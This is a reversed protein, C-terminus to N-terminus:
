ELPVVVCSSPELLRIVGDEVKRMENGIQVLKGKMQPVCLDIIWGEQDSTYEIMYNGKEKRINLDIFNDGIRLRRVSMRDWEEPLQPSLRITKDYAEPWVGLIGSILTKAMGYVTWAQFPCGYDPMMENIAGPMNQNLTAAIMRLYKVAEDPRGNNAEAVAQVGTSITMMHKREVASLYPGYVGCNYKGIHELAKQARERPAICCEMPTNIVWNKNTFWGREVNPELTKAEHLISQYFSILSDNGSEKYMKLQDIAGQVVKMADSAKAYFDCYSCSSENWFDTNIKKKLLDARSAYTFALSDENMINAMKSAAELAQQTYVAVDILEANLGKVEMIGYGEPFLNQNTDMEETLWTIGKKVGPYIEDLLKKDGTWRFADWLAMIYHATEQTNGRNGVFGNNSMEHIIRGNGNVRESVHYLLRLTSKVVDFNGTRLLGQLSYSNDCGFLWPYEVAGASLFLGITDVETELWRNNVLTWYYAEELKKDPIEIQSVSLQNSIDQAKQRKQEDVNDLLRECVNKADAINEISYAMAYHVVQEEGPELVLTTNISAPTVKGQTKIESNGLEYSDIKHSCKWAMNWNHLSDKAAFLSREKDWMVKDAADIIGNEESYWVPFLDVNTLFEMNLTYKKNSTNHLIYSIVLGKEIDSVFQESQVCVGELPIGFDFSTLHPFVTMEKAHLLTDIDQVTDALKLWYGDAMKFSGAWLGGMEGSVHSGMDPFMGNQTGIIRAMRGSTVYVKDGNESHNSIGNFCYQWLASGEKNNSVCGFLCLSSLLLIGLKYM